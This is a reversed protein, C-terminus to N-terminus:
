RGVNPTLQIGTINGFTYYESWFTNRAKIYDNKAKGVTSTLIAFKNLDTRGNYLDVKSKEYSIQLTQLIEFYNRMSEDLYKLEFYMNIVITKVEKESVMRDYEASEIELKKQDLERKRNTLGSIPLKLGIGAYYTTQETQSVIGTSVNSEDTNEQMLFNDYLGYKLTGEIYLFDMWSRKHILLDKEVILVETAKQKLLPSNELAIQVVSDLPPLKVYSSDSENQAFLLTSYFFLLSVIFTKM